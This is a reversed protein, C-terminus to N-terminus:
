SPEIQGGTLMEDVCEEEKKMNQPSMRRAACRPPRDGTNIDLKWQMQISRHSPSGTGSIYGFIEVPRRCPPTLDRCTQEM